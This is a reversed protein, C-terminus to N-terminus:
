GGLSVTKIENSRLACRLSELVSSQTIVINGDILRICTQEKEDKNVFNYFSVIADNSFWMERYKMGMSDDPLQALVKFFM